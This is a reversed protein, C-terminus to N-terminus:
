SKASTTPCRKCCAAALSAADLRDVIQQVFSGNDSEAAQLLRLSEDDHTQLKDAPVRKERGRKRYFDIVRVKAIGCLWTLISCTSNYSRAM